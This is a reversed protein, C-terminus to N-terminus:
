EAETSEALARLLSMGDNQRFPAALCEGCAWEGEPALFMAHAYEYCGCRSCIREMLPLRGLTPHRLTTPTKM